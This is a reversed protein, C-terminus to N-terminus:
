LLITGVGIFRLDDDEDGCPNWPPAQGYGYSYGYAHPVAAVLEPQSPVLFVGAELGFPIYEQSRLQINRVAETEAIFNYVGIQSDNDAGIWVGMPVYGSLLGYSPNSFRLSVFSPYFPANPGGKLCEFQSPTVAAAPLVCFRVCGSQRRTCWLASPWSDNRGLRGYFITNSALEMTHVHVKGIITSDEIHLDAGESALDAGAYVVSCPSCGDLISSCIRASGGLTMGISGSICRTMSLVVGSSECVISAAGPSKPRGSRDLALGPVLTCDMLQINAADGSINLAGSLWVGSFTLQGTAPINVGDGTGRQASVAINGRLVTCAEDYIYTGTDTAQAAVIWLQSEAPIVIAAAATLDIDLTANGPLLILGNTGSPTLNWAAVTDALSNDPGVVSQFGLQTAALAALSQSRDYSGGGLNAPFGYCYSVQLVQPAPYDSGFQIRGLVPDIAVKDARTCGWSDPHRDSLDRCCIDAQPILLGDGYLAVSAGDGYFESMTERFEQRQIPQPVDLRTTMRSFSDRPTLANFMPMDCGLPSFMYRHKDVAFAPAKAVPFSKWRWVYVGVDPINFRDGGHLNIDLPTSDPEDIKLLRPAIRRVDITRNLSAFPSNYLAPDVFRRINANSCHGKRVHRMSETVILRKFFEVVLTARGSVDMTVQELALLTGKRRRYGITNAVEARRGTAGNGIEFITDSGVLDGIYPIVWPACTEIFQDDYLKRINEEVIESQEALVTCLAYLPQGNEVDRTRYIAPLLAYLQDKNLSM